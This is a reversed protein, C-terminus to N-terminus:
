SGGGSVTDSSAAAAPLADVHAVLRELMALCGAVVESGENTPVRVTRPSAGSPAPAAYALVRGFPVSDFEAARGAWEALAAPAAFPDAGHLRALTRLLVLVTSRTAVLLEFLQRADNGAALVGGRLRLLAGMAQFELQRRLDKLDVAVGALPLEGALVRHADLVEAYEMPFVDASSRWEAATLTLPAPQGGERWARVTPAVRRLADMGLADVVVLLDYTGGPAPAAGRVVERAASGYLVVARLASGYAGRLQATMEDLTMAPM